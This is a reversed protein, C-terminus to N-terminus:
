EMDFLNLFTHLDSIAEQPTQSVLNGERYETLAEHCEQAIEKRRTEQYRRKVIDVLIRQQEIPLQSVVELAEEFTIM